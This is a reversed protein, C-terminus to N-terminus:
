SGKSNILGRDRFALKHCSIRAELKKKPKNLPHYPNREKRLCDRSSNPMFRCKPNKPRIRKKSARMTPHWQPPYSYSERKILIYRCTCMRLLLQPLTMLLKHDCDTKAKAELGAQPPKRSATSSSMKAVTTAIWFTKLTSPSLTNTARPNASSWSQTLCLPTMGWLPISRLSPQYLQAENQWRTQYWCQTTANCQQGSV